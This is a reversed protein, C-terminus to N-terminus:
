EGGWKYKMATKRDRSHFFRQKNTYTGFPTIVKMVFFIPTGICLLMFLSRLRKTEIVMHKHVLFCVGCQEKQVEHGVINTVIFNDFTPDSFFPSFKNGYVEQESLLL